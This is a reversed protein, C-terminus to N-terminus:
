PAPNESLNIRFNELYDKYLQVVRREPWEQRLKYVTDTSNTVVFIHTLDARAEVHRLFDKFRTEQMLVAFPSGEPLLWPAHANPATPRPGRAGAMMWLLPLIAAFQRGMQVEGPALFDLRFYELNAAFGEALPRKEDETVMQPGLTEAIQAKLATFLKNEMTVVCVETVHDAEALEELWASAQQVDWLVSVAIEDDLFWPGDDVKSQPVAPLLAAVQKRQQLTLSRGEAFGLQRISRPRARAVQKGTLYDGPLPTGDDRRGLMTFKSRPWTVSRCIGHRDWETQGPQCGQATLTRNEVESVENNTVLICQRQGGDAANLLNVANLTTGSGAFFDVLLANPKDNIFLRLTDVVAYISKPFSFQGDPLVSRLLGTGYAGADYLTKRWATTPRAEKGGSIVVIKSEDSRSGIIQLTGAEVKKINPATLYAFTFPQGSHVGPSVRVYGGDLAKQLSARTLGWNMHVGDDRIPFVAIAGDLQPAENLAQNPSLPDGIKVIRQTTGDVYIPYFQNPGGKSTGRKSEIDNRRLYRWRVEIDHGDGGIVSVGATGVYVVVLYEDVQSLRKERSKGRPSITISVIQRECEPFLQELLLSLSHLENDDITVLLVSETPRLLRKALSLRRQMMSLWKSHRWGDNKDVYNNNYKWDRAGTNYPPDIYICDVKGEYPFLMLQLAHYNDAEILIHHPQAPDGNQVADIPTLAPYIAEGMRRVVILQKEDFTERIPADGDKGREKECHAQGDKVSLVRWIETLSGTKKAVRVDRKIRANHIPVVEPQHEEFVLGFRTRKKLKAVEEALAQRLSADVIEAIKDEIRAM